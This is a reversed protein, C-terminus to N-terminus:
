MEVSPSYSRRVPAHSRRLGVTCSTAGVVPVPRRSCWKAIRSASGLETTRAQSWSAEPPWTWAMSLPCPRWPTELPEKYLEASGVAVADLEVGADVVGAIWVVGSCHDTLSARQRGNQPVRSGSMPIARGQPMSM